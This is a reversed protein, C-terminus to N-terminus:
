AKLENKLENLFRWDTGQALIKQPSSKIMGVEYLRLAHFRLSDEASIERWSNFPLSKIVELAIEYRSEFGKSVMYQAAVEPKNACVDTAKLMARLVRKTATPYKTVYERHGAVMCCFYQSWPRDTTTNVIVHGVKRKRMEIPQPPFALFADVKAETFLRMSESLKGTAVWNVEKRPNIGVWALMTSIWLQDVLREGMVAVSKGRLDRVSKIGDSAHLEWCGVHVGSLMVISLGDDIGAAGASPGFVAFDVDGAGLTSVYNKGVTLNVYEIEKFGELRLFEEALYQPAYCSFPGNAFRVRTTELPPEALAHQGLGGVGLFGTAIAGRIFRRRHFDMELRSKM